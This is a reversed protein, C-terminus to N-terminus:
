VEFYDGCRLRFENAGAERRLLTEKREIGWRYGALTGDTRIVRHCPIAVAIPNAACARSVARTSKPAGICAALESYTTTQGYPVERLAQWVRQQFATGRIDLPLNLEHSGNEVAGVVQAVWIEFEGDGGVLVAKPFRDQLDHVLPEAEDGLLICCVGKETAAVLIAGLSCQGVAFRITEGQGGARFAAPPMGLFEAAAAYFRGSSNFGSGYIAEAITGGRALERRAREARCTEVYSRPTVGTVAKFVRHFHYRSMGAFEAMRALSPLSDAGEILRCVNAIAAARRRDLSVDKPRCRKCPRFGAREADNATAHFAVNERRAARSACSPRCYVGTTRVSYFFAGDARRDRAVVAAWRADDGDTPRAHKTSPAALTSKSVNHM